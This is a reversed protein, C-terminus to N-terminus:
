ERHEHSARPLPCARFLEAKPQGESEVSAVLCLGAPDKSIAQSVPDGALSIVFDAARAPVRLAPQWWGFNGENIVRAFDIGADQLAGVHDGTYMLLTSTPPLQALIAALKHEFAQRTRANVVAERWSV